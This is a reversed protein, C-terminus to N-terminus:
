RPIRKLIRSTETQSVAAAHAPITSSTRMASSSSTQRGPMGTSMAASDETMTPVKRAAAVICRERAKGRQKLIRRSGTKAQLTIQTHRIFLDQAAQRVEDIEAAIEAIEGVGGGDDGQEVDHNRDICRHRMQGAGHSLRDHHQKGM